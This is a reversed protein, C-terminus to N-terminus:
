LKLCLVHEGPAVDLARLADQDLAVGDSRGSVECRTAVARFREARLPAVLHLPASDPIAGAAAASARKRRSRSFANLAKRPAQLVPGGDFVDLYVDAEFGEARLLDYAERAAGHVQGMAQQAAPSLLPVYVPYHPMLEVIFSRNRAGGVLREAMQFDMQFFKRGLAEWFPSRGEADLQGSIAAFFKGAFRHPSAAAFLLRARSLLAAETRGGRALHFGSLQSCNTLDSCLSLAHVNHSIGLDHSVQALVDRRFAYYAGRAGATATLAATGALNGDEATLVFLYSEDSPARPSAAFAAASREVADEIAQRSRPLTHVVPVPEAVLQEFAPIDGSEVPRVVFM